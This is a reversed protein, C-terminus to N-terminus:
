ALTDGSPPSTPGTPGTPGSPGTADAEAAQEAKQEKQKAFAEDMSQIHKVIEHLHSVDQAMSLGPLTQGTARNAIYASVSGVIHVGDAATLHLVPGGSVGNIAVGDILYAHRFEQFASVNGSFFCLQHASMAPYGLWGVDVGIPLRTEVPLLPILEKPLKLDGIEAFIVASDRARDSFIVRQGERLFSVAGPTHYHIRIPQLWEDAHGVVHYATAIGFFQRTENYLCIFGTGHGSPTEIKVVYPTVKQVIDNWNM